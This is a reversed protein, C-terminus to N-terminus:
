PTEPPADEPPESVPSPPPPPPAQAAAIDARTQTALRMAEAQDPHGDANAVQQLQVLAQELDGAAHHRQATLFIGHLQLHDALRSFRVDDAYEEAAIVGQQLEAIDTATLLHNLQEYTNEMKIHYSVLDRVAQLDTLEELVIDPYENLRSLMEDASVVDERTMERIQGMMSTANQLYELYRQANWDIEALRELRDDLATDKDSFNHQATLYIQQVRAMDKMAFADEAEVDMQKMQVVMQEVIAQRTPNLSPAGAYIQYAAVYTNWADVTDQAILQVAEQAREEARALADLDDTAQQELDILKQLTAEDLFREARPRDQLADLAAQPQYEQLHDQAALMGPLKNSAWARGLREIEDRTDDVPVMRDFVLVAGTENRGVRYRPLLADSALKNLEDLADTHREAGIAIQYIGRAIVKNERLRTAKQLLIELGANGAHEAHAVAVLDRAKTYNETLLTDPHAPQDSAESEAAKQWLDNCHATIGRVQLDTQKEQIRQQVRGQYQELDERTEDAGLSSEWEQLYRKAVDVNLLLLDDNLAADLQVRANSRKWEVLHKQLSDLQQGAELLDSENLAVRVQELLQLARQREDSSSETM